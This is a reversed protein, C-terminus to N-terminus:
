KQGINKKKVDAESLLCRSMNMISRNFREATGNLEHVYRPCTNITIGKEKVFNYIRNNLYETGNDCRLVKVRKVTLNESENIFEVLCDFVEAKSKIPYVKAIKSYDDIFSVFYREGNPGTTQFTGCVDTHIIELVQKAQYRNNEFPLKNMKNEICIKCRMYESEIESPIGDLLKNKILKNLYDFNVHGLMRHWKAKESMHNINTSNVHTTDLKLKTQMRHLNGEKWAVATVKNKNEIIKTLNGKSIITNTNTIKGYSILNSHMDKVYYVNNIRVESEKGFANFYSKVTGIKTAKVISNNGLCVNMPKELVRYNEFYSDNNVIHDTCGSDLLWNIENNNVRKVEDESNVMNCEM